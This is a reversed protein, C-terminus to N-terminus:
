TPNHIKFNHITKSHNQASPQSKYEHIHLAQPPLPASHVSPFSFQYAKAKIYKPHQQLSYHLVSTNEHLDSVFNVLSLLATSKEIAWQSIFLRQKCFNKMWETLDILLLKAIGVRDSYMLCCITTKLLHPFVYVSILHSSRWVSPHLIFVEIIQWIHLNNFLVPEM